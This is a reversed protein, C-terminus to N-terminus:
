VGLSGSTGRIIYIVSLIVTALFCTTIVSVLPGLPGFTAGLSLAFMGNFFLAVTFIMWGITAVITAIIWFFGVVIFGIWRGISSFAEGVSCLSNECRDAAHVPPSTLRTTNTIDMGGNISYANSNFQFVDPPGPAPNADWLLRIIVIIIGDTPLEQQNNRTTWVVETLVGTEFTVNTRYSMLPGIVACSMAINDEGIIDIRMDITQTEEPYGWWTFFGRFTWDGATLVIGTGALSIGYGWLTSDDTPGNAWIENLVMEEQPQQNTMSNFPSNVGCTVPNGVKQPFMMVYSSVIDGANSSVPPSPTAFYWQSPGGTLTNTFDTWGQVQEAGGSWEAFSILFVALIAFCAIFKLLIKSLHIM